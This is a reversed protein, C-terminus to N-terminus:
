FFSDSQKGALAEFDIVGGSQKAQPVPEPEPEPKKQVPAPQQQQPPPQSSPKQDEAGGMDDFNFLANGVTQGDTNISNRGLPLDKAEKDTKSMPAFRSNSEKEFNVPGNDDEPEDPIRQGKKSRGFFNFGGDSKKKKPQEEEEEKGFAAPTDEEEDDGGENPLLRGKKLNGKGPGAKCVFCIACFSLIVWLLGSVFDIVPVFVLSTYLCKVDTPKKGNTWKVKSILDDKCWPLSKAVRSADEYGVWFYIIGCAMILLGLFYMNRSRRIFTFFFCLCLVALSVFCVTLRIGNNSTPWSCMFAHYKSDNNNDFSFYSPRHSSLADDSSCASKHTSNDNLISVGGSKTVDAITYFSLILLGILVLLCVPYLIISLCGFCRMKHQLEQEPSLHKSKGM